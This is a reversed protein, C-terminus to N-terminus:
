VLAGAKKEAFFLSPCTIGIRADIATSRQPGLLFNERAALVRATPRLGERRSSGPGPTTDPPKSAPSGPASEPAASPSLVPSPASSEPQTELDHVRSELEYVVRLGEYYQVVRADARYLSRRLSTPKLDGAHVQSLRVGTLNLTLAISFFAMAATMALRPQLFGAGLPRGSAALRIRASIAAFGPAQASWPAIGRGAPAPLPVTWATGTGAPYTSGQVAAQSSPEFATQGSTRALIRELLEAPPEPRPSRLMELWALGRQADSLVAECASCAAIHADFRVRDAANLTEDLADTLM